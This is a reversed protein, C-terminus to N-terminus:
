TELWELNTVSDSLEASPKVSLPPCEDTMEQENKKRFIGSDDGTLDGCLQFGHLLSACLGKDSWDITELVVAIFAINFDTHLSKVGQSVNRVM